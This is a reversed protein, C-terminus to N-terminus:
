TLPFCCVQLFSIHMCCPGNSGSFQFCESDHFFRQKVAVQLLELRWVFKGRHYCWSLAFSSWRIFLSRLHDTMFTGQIRGTEM